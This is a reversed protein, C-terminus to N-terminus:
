IAIEECSGLAPFSCPGGLTVTLEYAGPTTCRPLEVTVSSASVSTITAPRITGCYPDDCATGKAVLTLTGPTGNKQLSGQFRYINAPNQYTIAMSSGNDEICLTHPSGQGVDTAHAAPVTSDLAQAFISTPEGLFNENQVIVALVSGFFVGGSTQAHAPIVVTDVVPRVWHKPIVGGAALASSSLALKKLLDRRGHTSNSKGSKENSNDKM